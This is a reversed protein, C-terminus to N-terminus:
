QKINNKEYEIIENILDTKFQEFEKKDVERYLDSIKCLPFLVDIDIYGGELFKGKEDINKSYFKGKFLIDNGSSVVVDSIAGYVIKYYTDKIPNYKVIRIYKGIFKEM